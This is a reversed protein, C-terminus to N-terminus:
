RCDTRATEHSNGASPLPKSRIRCTAVTLEDLLLEIVETPQHTRVAWEFRTVGRILCGFGYSGIAGRFQHALVEIRSWERSQFALELALMKEPIEDIFQNIIPALCVDEALESYIPALASSYYPQM